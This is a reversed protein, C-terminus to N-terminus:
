CNPSLQTRVQHWLRHALALWQRSVEPVCEIVHGAQEDIPAASWFGAHADFCSFNGDRPNTSKYKKVLISSEGFQHAGVNQTQQILAVFTQDLLKGFARAVMSACPHGSLVDAVAM